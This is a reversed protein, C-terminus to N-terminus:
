GEDGLIEEWKGPPIGTMIFEREDTTLNPMARQILADNERALLHEETIPLELVNKEGTFPNIREILM